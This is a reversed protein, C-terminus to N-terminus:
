AACQALGKKEFIRELVLGVYAIFAPEANTYEPHGQVCFSQTNPYWVLEPDLMDDNAWEEVWPGQQPIRLHRRQGVANPSIYISGGQKWECISGRDADANPVAHGLLVAEPGLRMMQHHTSTVPFTLSKSWGNLPKSDWFKETDPNRVEVMHSGSRHNPVDQWLSGGSLTNLLQAGRCIGLKVKDRCWNYAWVDNIDRHVNFQTGPIANENYLQPSIDAGGTFIVLDAERINSVPKYFFKSGDLQNFKRTLSGEMSQALDHTKRHTLPRGDQIFYNIKPRTTM